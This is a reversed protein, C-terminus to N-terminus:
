EFYNIFAVCTTKIDENDYVNFVYNVEDYTVKWVTLASTTSAETTFTVATATKAAYAGKTAVNLLMNQSLEKNAAIQAATLDANTFCDSSVYVTYTNTTVTEVTKTSVPPYHGETPDKNIDVQANANDLWAFWYEADFDNDNSIAFISGNPLTGNMASNVATTANKAQSTASSLRAQKTVTTFTPILVAALIGIVAIVIVLEVITFGKRNKM